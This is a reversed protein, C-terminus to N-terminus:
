KTIRIRTGVKSLSISDNGITEFMNEPINNPILGSIENVGYEFLVTSLPTSPGIIVTHANEGLQLLRPLTKNTFASGTIFILDQNPLIYECASDPYDGPEPIRELISIETSEFIAHELARFHGIIAVKKNKAFDIYDDFTNGTKSFELPQNNYFANLAATGVSATLFNWSKCLTAITELSQGQLYSYDPLSAHQENITVAIGCLDGAKVLTWIPGQHIYDVKITAPVEKILRDYINWM